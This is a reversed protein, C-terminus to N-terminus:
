FERGQTLAGLRLQLAPLSAFASFEEWKVSLIRARSMLGSTCTDGSLNSIIRELGKERRKRRPEMRGQKSLEETMLNSFRPDCKGEGVFM